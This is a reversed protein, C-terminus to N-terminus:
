QNEKTNTGEFFAGLALIIIGVVWWTWDKKYLAAVVLTLGGARMALKPNYAALASGAIVPLFFAPGFDKPTPPVEQTSAAEIRRLERRRAVRQTRHLQEWETKRHPDKYPM